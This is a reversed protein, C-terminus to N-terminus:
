KKRLVEKGTFVLEFGDRTKEYVEQDERFELVRLMEDDLDEIVYRDIRRIPVTMCILLAILMLAPAILVLSTLSLKVLEEVGAIAKGQDSFNLMGKWYWLVIILVLFPLSIFPLVSKQVGLAAFILELAFLALLSLLGVLFVRTQGGIGDFRSGGVFKVALSFLVAAFCYTTAPAWFAFLAKALCPLSLNAGCRSALEWKGSLIEEFIFLKPVFSRVLMILLSAIVTFLYAAGFATEFLYDPLRRAVVPALKPLMLVIVAPVAAVLVSLILRIPLIVGAGRAANLFYSGFSQSNKKM